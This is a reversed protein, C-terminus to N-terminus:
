DTYTSMMRESTRRVEKHLVKSYANGQRGRGVIDEGEKLSWGLREVEERRLPV